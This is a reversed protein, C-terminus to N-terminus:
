PSGPLVGSISRGRASFDAIPRSSRRSGFAPVLRPDRDMRWGIRAAALKRRWAGAGDRRSRRHSCRGAHRIDAATRRGLRDVRAAARTDRGGCRAAAAVRAAAALGEHRGSVGAREVRRLHVTGARREVRALRGASVGRDRAAACGGRRWLAGSVIRARRQADPEARRTRGDPIQPGGVAHPRLGDGARRRQALVEAAM